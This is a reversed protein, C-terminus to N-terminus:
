VSSVFYLFLPWLKFVNFMFSILRIWKYAIYIMFYKNGLNSIFFTGDAPLLMHYSIILRGLLLFITDLLYFFVFSFTSDKM